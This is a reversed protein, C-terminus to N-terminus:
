SDAGSDDTKDKSTGGQQRGRLRSAKEQLNRFYESETIETVAQDKKRQDIEIRLEAIQAQMKQERVYVERAMQQFILALQGLEDNRELVSKLGSSDLDDTTLTNNAIAETLAALHGIPSVISRKVFVNMAYVAVVFMLIVVALVTTLLLSAETLVDNAPVYMIQTAVIEGLEWYFGQEDGFTAIQSAPALAPDSHCELCSEQTVALPRANYFLRQGDVERYGSIEDLSPDAKFQAVLETEFDDAQDRPNTPNVTAEKYFYSMYEPNNRTNEFVQRASFAPVTESIFEESEYLDELLLPRVHESTYSRVSNMTEMLLLSRSSVERAAVRQLALALLITAFLLGGIFVSALLINLKSNLKLNSLM